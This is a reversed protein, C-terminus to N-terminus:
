ITRPKVLSVAVQQIFGCVPMMWRGMRLRSEILGLWGLFRNLRVGPKTGFDYVFGDREVLRVVGFIVAEAVPRDLYPQHDGKMCYGDPGLCIFRHTVFGDSRQVVAVDGRRLQRGEMPVVALHDGPLLSPVMSRGVVCLRLLADAPFGESVLVRAATYQVQDM